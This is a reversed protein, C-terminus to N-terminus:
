KVIVKSKFHLDLMEHRGTEVLQHSRKSTLHISTRKSLCRRIAVRLILSVCFTMMCCLFNRITIAPLLDLNLRIGWHVDTTKNALYHLVLHIYIYLEVVWPPFKQQTMLKLSTLPAASAFPSTDTVKIWGIIIITDIRLRGHGVSLMNWIAKVSYQLGTVIM